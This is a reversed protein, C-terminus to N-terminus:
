PMHPCISRGRAAASFLMRCIKGQRKREHQDHENDALGGCYDEYFDGAMILGFQEMGRPEHGLPRLGPNIKEFIM